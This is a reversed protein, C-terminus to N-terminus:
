CTPSICRSRASSTSAYATRSVSSMAPFTARLSFPPGEREVQRWAPEQSRPSLTAMRYHTIDRGARLYIGHIVEQYDNVTNGIDEVVV